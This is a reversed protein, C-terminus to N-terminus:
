GQEDDSVELLCSDEDSGTPRQKPGDETTGPEGASQLTANAANESKLRKEPQVELADTDLRRKGNSTAGDEDSAERKLENRDGSTSTKLRIEQAQEAAQGTAENRFLIRNELLLDETVM